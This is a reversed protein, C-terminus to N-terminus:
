FHEEFSLAFGFGRPAKEDEVVVDDLSVIFDLNFTAAFTLGFTAYTLKEDTLNQKFGIRAGPIWYKQPHYSTAANFWQNEGAVPDDHSVLDLSAGVLWNDLIYYSGSATLKPDKKHQEYPDILGKSNAFYEAITCNSQQDSGAVMQDCNIGVSGYDFSPGNLSELSVGVMFKPAKLIAGFDLGIGTSQIRNNKYEDKIVDEIEKGGLLELQFVQKSLEIDYINIKAGLYLESGEIGFVDTRTQQSYGISIKKQLASKIYASTSTNFTEKQEDYILTDALLSLQVQSAFNMEFALTGPVFSPNWYLPFAPLSAATTTKLYGDQGAQRIVRNFRATTQTVDEEQANEPDELIDILEDIDDVFNDVQGFETANSVAVFWSMRFREDSDIMLSGAAPNYAGSFLSYPNPAAGASYSQGYDVLNSAHSLTCLGLTGITAYAARKLPTLLELRRGNPQTKAKLAKSHLSTAWIFHTSEFSATIPREQM